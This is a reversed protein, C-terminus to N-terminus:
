AQLKDFDKGDKLISKKLTGDIFGLKNKAKLITRVAREWLNYNKEYFIVAM